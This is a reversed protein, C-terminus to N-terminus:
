MVMGVKRIAQTLNRATRAKEPFSIRHFPSLFLEGMTEVNM